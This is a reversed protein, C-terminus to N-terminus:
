KCVCVYVCVCVCVCVYMCVYMRVSGPATFSVSEQNIGDSTKITITHKGGHLGSQHYPSKCDTFSGSDLQCQTDGNTTFTVSVSDCTVTPPNVELQALPDVYRTVVSIILVSSSYINIYWHIM